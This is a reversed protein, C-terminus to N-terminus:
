LPGVTVSTGARISRILREDAGVSQGSWVVSSRVDGALQAGAGIVCDLLEVGSEIQADAAVISTGRLAVADLNAMLYDLPRGCDRFDGASGVVELEGSASADRWVVEYLGTPREELRAVVSWPLLSAVIPANPGFEAVGHVLVRTRGGDWGDLLASLDATSWTDANVVLAARGDIWGRMRAIGGATGLPEDRELSQRVRSGWERDLHRTLLDAHHHLNVGLHETLPILRDLAHDVLARNGVPCLAKPLLETLPHLRRGLGAALVIGVLDSRLEEDGPTASPEM